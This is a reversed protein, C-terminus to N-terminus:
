MAWVIHQGEYFLLQCKGVIDSCRKKTLFRSKTPKESNSKKRKKGRKKWMPRLSPIREITDQFGVPGSAWFRAPARLHEDVVRQYFYAFNAKDLPVRPVELTAWEYPLAFFDTFWNKLRIVAPKQALIVRSCMSLSGRFRSPGRLHEEGVM